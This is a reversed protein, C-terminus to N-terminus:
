IENWEETQYGTICHLEECMMVMNSTDNGRMGNWQISSGQWKEPFSEALSDGGIHSGFWPSLNELNVRHAEYLLMLHSGVRKKSMLSAPEQYRLHQQPVLAPTGVIHHLPPKPPHVPVSVVHSTILLSLFLFLSLTNSLLIEAVKIQLLSLFLSSFSFVPSSEPEVAASCTSM